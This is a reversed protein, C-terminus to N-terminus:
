AVKNCEYHEGAIYGHEPCVSFTPTITFYPLKFNYAITKVLKSCTVPDKIREGLFGHFVTGGTYKVQLDDQMELAEFIDDTYDVPLNTSNTYYPNKRGRTFIDPYIKKDIKALRYSTGEAPTAELNYLNGTTEQFRKLKERMFNLTNLALEHGESTAISKGLFNVCAENMGNLGITAFHHSLNGLYRKSFPLLGNNMNREVLERRIELSDKALNMLKELREFFERESKALYGIRPMNITVVGLSGTKEGSGFLGGTKTKLEKLNMQLRCCMSRVDHPELSSNIFNQFYPIGYKSTLEFLLRANETSWDFDETINYTPIPFTFIRGKMDGALMVEIFAKNIVDMEEQFDSYKESQLEGGIIVNEDQMDKPVTWDFTFNTFPTQCGWRSPTNLSFVLQQIEQKVERYSLGDSRVFPALYTDLSSFAQAGAWENQLTGLFNVIHGIVTNYHKAPASEVKAPVGNFGEILLDRLSWGACYGNIGMYLDHVHFDGNKHAEAIERPYINELVYNAIISGSLHLSLGSYSYDVNSNENVRWDERKLYEDMTKTADILLSRTDRIKRHQDRYLIYAKATRAHGDEILTKEVADQIQEVTPICNRDTLREELLKISKLAIKRATEKDRGGVAKASKFIAQIIREIDFDTIRGSRKRVKKFPIRQKQM